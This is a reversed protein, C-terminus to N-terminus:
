DYGLYRRVGNLARKVIGEDDISWNHCDDPPNVDYFLDCYRAGNVKSCCSKFGADLIKDVETDEFLAGIAGPHKTALQSFRYIFYLVTSNHVLIFM